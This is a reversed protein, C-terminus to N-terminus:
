RVEEAPPDNVALATTLDLDRALATASFALTLAANALRGQVMLHGGETSVDCEALPVRAVVKTADIHVPGLVLLDDRDRAIVYRSGAQLLSVGTRTPGRGGMYVGSGLTTTTM